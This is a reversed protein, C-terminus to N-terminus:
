MKKGDCMVDEKPATGEVSWEWESDNLTRKNHSWTEGRYFVHFM